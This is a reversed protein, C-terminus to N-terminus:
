VNVRKNSLKSPKVCTFISKSNKKLEEIDDLDEPLTAGLTEPLLGCLLGGVVACGGLVFYPVKDSTAEALDSMFPTFLAGVRAMLSCM